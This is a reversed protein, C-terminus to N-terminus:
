IYLLQSFIWQSICIIYLGTYRYLHSYYSQTKNGMYAHLCQRGPYAFNIYPKTLHAHTAM